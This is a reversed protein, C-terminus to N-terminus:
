KEWEKKCFNKNKDRQKRIGPLPLSLDTFAQYRGRHSILM